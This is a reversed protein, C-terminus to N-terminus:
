GIASRRAGLLSGLLRRFDVLGLRRRTEFTAFTVRIKLGARFRFGAIFVSGVQSVFVRAYSSSNWVYAWNELDGM